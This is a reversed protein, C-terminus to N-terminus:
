DNNLAKLTIGDNRLGTVIDQPVHFDTQPNRGNTLWTVITRKLDGLFTRLCSYKTKVVEGSMVLNQKRVKLKRYAIFLGLSWEGYYGIIRRQRSYSHEKIRKELEFLVPFVFECFEDYLKKKAVFISYPVFTNSDYMYKLLAEKADPYISLVTDIYLWYDEQSLATILGKSVVDYQTAKYYDCVLMDKGNLLKEINDESIDADLYRRYHCLGLYEVNKINKWGWYIATWESWAANRESINDGENDKTYGLNMEPHLNSGVQIAKYVGDNRTYPDQKHACVLLIVGGVHIKGVLRKLIRKSMTHSNMWAVIKYILLIDYRSFLGPYLTRIQQRYYDREGVFLNFLCLREWFSKGKFDLHGIFDERIDKRAHSAEAFDRNEIMVPVPLLYVKSKKYMRFLCEVDEFRRIGENFPCALAVRRSCMFDGTRAAYYHFFLAAYPNKLIGEKFSFPEGQQKGDCKYISSCCFIEIESHKDSLNHFTALAEPLFEDDADLFVIWEGKANKVGTNRAKSPGGNEQKILRIRSDHIAEVKAVSNDTSGDDVVVVEFDSYDQSLVSELTKEIIAEKNYLPIVVSIM